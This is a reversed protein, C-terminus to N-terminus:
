LPFLAPIAESAAARVRTAHLPSAENDEPDIEVMHAGSRQAQRAFGAAPRVAGSTGVSVFLDAQAVLRGARAFVRADVDDEFWTIDPRLWADCQPCKRHRFAGQGEDASIGHAACRMRWLSGHLEAAVRVGARQFMGDINQTIVAVDPLARGPDAGAESRETM